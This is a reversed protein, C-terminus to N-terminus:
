PDVKGDGRCELCEGHASHYPGRFTIRGQGNCDECVVKMRERELEEKLDRVEQRLPNPAAHYGHAQEYNEHAGEVWAALEEIQEKTAAVKLDECAEAICEKWYNM